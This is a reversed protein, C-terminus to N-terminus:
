YHHFKRGRQNKIMVMKVIKIARLEFKFHDIDNFKKALKM